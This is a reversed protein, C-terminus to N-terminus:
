QTLKQIADNQALEILERCGPMEYLRALEAFLEDGAQSPELFEPSKEQIQRVELVLQAIRHYEKKIKPLKAQLDEKTEVERLIETLKTVESDGEARLDEM